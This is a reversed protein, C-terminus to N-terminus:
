LDKLDFISKRGGQSSKRQDDESFLNVTINEKKDDKKELKDGKKEITPLTIDDNSFTIKEKKVQKSLNIKVRESTIANIILLVLTLVTFSLSSILFLKQINLVQQLELSEM